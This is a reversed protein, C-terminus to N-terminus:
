FQNVTKTPLNSSPHIPPFIPTFVQNLPNFESVTKEIAKAQVNKYNKSHKQMKPRRWATRLTPVQSGGGGGGM